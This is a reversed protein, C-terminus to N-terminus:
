AWQGSSSGNGAKTATKQSSTPHPGFGSGQNTDKTRSNAHNNANIPPQSIAPLSVTVRGGGGPVNDLKVEGLHAEIINKIISMGLGMGKTKTTFYPVFPNELQAQDFGPGNDEFVMSISGDELRQLKVTLRGPRGPPNAETAQIGNIYINTIAQTLLDKDGHFSLSGAPLDLSLNVNKFKSDFSIFTHIENLFKILDINALRLASLGYYELPLSVTVLAGGDSNNALEINGKFAQIVNQAKALGLGSNQAKSSFYPVFPTQLQKRGFGPGNDSFTINARNSGTRKLTVKLIGPKDEPNREMAQFANNYLSTLAESLQAPDAQVYLQGEPMTLEMTVPSSDNKLRFEEHIKSLFETLELRESNIAPNAFSQFDAITRAMREVCNVIVSLADKEDPGAAKNLLHQTLGKIAGLPNRIEHALGSALGGLRAMREQKHLADKLRNIEGLDAMLVVRGLEGGPGIIPGCTVALRLCPADKFSIDMEKATLEKDDPFANHTLEKLTHGLFESETIGALKQAAQNALIVHGQPDNIILGLPLRTIIENTVAYNRMFRRSWSFAFFVSLTFLATLISFIVSNRRMVAAAKMFEDMRYGIWVYTALAQQSEGTDLSALPDPPISNVEKKEHHVPAPPEPLLGYLLPRYVLLAKQGNILTLERLHPAWKDNKFAELTEPETFDPKDLINEETSIAKIRGKNDSTAIFLLDPDQGLKSILEELSLQSYTKIWKFQLAVAVTKIMSEGKVLYLQELNRRERDLDNIAIFATIGLWFLCLVLLLKLWFPIRAPRSLYDKAKPTM